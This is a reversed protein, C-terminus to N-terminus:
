AVVDVPALLGEFGDAQQQSVLDFVRFVEEDKSAVVFAGGDVSDVSEIVFALAPVVNLQPLRKGVAEVAEWNCGDNILLNECHVPTKARVEVGHFLNAADHSGCIYAFEKKHLTSHLM